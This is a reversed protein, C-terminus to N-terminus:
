TTHIHDPYHVVVACEKSPMNMVVLIGCHYYAHTQAHNLFTVFMLWLSVVIHM